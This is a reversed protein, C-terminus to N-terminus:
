RRETGNGGGGLALNFGIASKVIAGNKDTGSLM